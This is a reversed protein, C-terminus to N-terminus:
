DGLGETYRCRPFNECGLFREGRREGQKVTRLVLAGGCRPCVGSGHSPKHHARIDAIHKRKVSPDTQTYPYLLQFIEDIQEPTLANRTLRSLRGITRRLESRRVVTVDDREIDLRKLECRPSFVVVSHMPIEEDLLERLHRIHLDNQLIPNFFKEKRVRRGAPLTQTWYSSRDSGFIWGGYNKSEFVFIGAETLMLLDIETTEDGGKPIYCNILFRGGRKEFRRLERWLLYEGNRGANWITSLWGSGTMRAYSSRRFSLWHFLIGVAALAIPMFILIQM